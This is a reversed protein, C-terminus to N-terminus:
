TYIIKPNRFFILQPLKCDFIVGDSCHYALIDMKSSDTCDFVVDYCYDQDLTKPTSFIGFIGCPYPSTNLVVSSFWPVSEWQTNNRFYKEQYNSGVFCEPPKRAFAPIQDIPPYM